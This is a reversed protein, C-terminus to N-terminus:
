QLFRRILFRGFAEALRHLSGTRLHGVAFAADVELDHVHLARRAGERAIEELTAHVVPETALRLTVPSSSM